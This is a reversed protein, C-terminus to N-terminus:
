AFVIAQLNLHRSSWSALQHCLWLRNGRKVPNEDMVMVDEFFSTVVPEIVHLQKLYNEPTSRSNQDANLIPQLAAFFNKEETIELESEVLKEAIIEPNKSSINDARVIAEVSRKFLDTELHESLYEAFNLQEVPLSTSRQTEQSQRSDSRSQLVADILDYRFGQEQMFWRQRQQLFELLEQQLKPQDLNLSQQDDLIRIAASTLDRTDLSLRLGLILQIIGQANRRLAYPDAAGSPIMGLSFATTLLDLKDAIAVPVTVQDGPLLDKAHRPFYHERIGRCVVDEENELGAYNQGMVGQLEPFESVMRTELDFKCLEAIRQVQKQQSKSIKLRDAIFLSLESLRQVRQHQSGRSQFFVVKEAKNSFEDLPSKQDEQYFFRADSLRARLVKENGRRVTELSKSDGNRVTVFNPFLKKEGASQQNTKRFVPFYRQHVEMSTILVESPLELFEEEFDGMLVTPWEVLNTVETLLKDDLEVKCDNQEELKNVQSVISQRRKEFDAIVKLKKLQMEYDAAHNITSEASSLFRHGRTENGAALMELKIPVVTTNWLSVVWRVPRIFRTRYSGWRMNKPFSLKSIWEAAYGQFLEPVHKGLESHQAFLYEKGDFSKTELNDLSIKNKTAFGEAAKTWNNETDRAISLPPGKLEIKRDEEKDPLGSLLIALRRPTSFTQIDSLSLQHQECTKQALSKLQEVAPLIMQAPMEELGIELLYTNM